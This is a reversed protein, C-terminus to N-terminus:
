KFICIKECKLCGICLEEHIKPYMFGYKDAEREIAGRPCVTYCAGCGCCEGSKKFLVPARKKGLNKDKQTM